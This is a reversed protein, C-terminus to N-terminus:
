SCVNDEGGEPKTELEQKVDILTNIVEIIKNGEVPIDEVRVRILKLQNICIQLRETM